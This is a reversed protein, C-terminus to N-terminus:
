GISGGRGVACGILVDKFLDSPMAPFQVHPLLADIGVSEVLRRALTKSQRPHPTLACVAKPETNRVGGM